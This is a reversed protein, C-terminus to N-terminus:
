LDQLIKALRPEDKATFEPSVASLSAKRATFVSCAIKTVDEATVKDIRSVVDAPSIFKGHTLVNEGLWMMQSTMSELGLRTQGIMYDKARRLEKAGVPKTKLRVLEKVILQLAKEHKTRDLGATIVCAGTDEYLYCGSHVSYALGHKERVVQFLRSSMNEGLVASLVRLAFRRNDTRGFTRFGLALQTQEISKQALTVLHPRNKATFPRCTPLPKKKGRGGLSVVKKVCEDHDVRGAFAFVTNGPVYRKARFNVIDARNMKRLTEPYGIIPIGLPHGSWMAGGLMEHVVHQPQDKYMMIEEIIVGREKDIESQALNSNRYMDALVELSGELWDFGVRAYYCTSEEQTFANLYGGRGEIAESIDKASRKKTGKFLLHEIFHSIGALRKPEYRAGVGVWIGFTVSEVTPVSSTVVRVGNSLESVRVDNLM